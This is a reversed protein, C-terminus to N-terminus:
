HGLSRRLRSVEFLRGAFGCKPITKAELVPEVYVPGSDNPMPPQHFASHCDGFAVRNWHIDATTFLGQLTTLKPAAANFDAEPSVTQAFGRAVLRM